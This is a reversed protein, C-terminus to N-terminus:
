TLRSARKVNLAVQAYSKGTECIQKVNQRVDPSQQVPAVDNLEAYRNCVSKGAQRFAQQMPSLTKPTDTM